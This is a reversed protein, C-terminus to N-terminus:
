EAHEQYLDQEEFDNAQVLNNNRLRTPPDEFM